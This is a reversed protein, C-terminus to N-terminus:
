IICWKSTSIKHIQNTSFQDSNYKMLIYIQLDYIEYLIMNYSLKYIMYKYTMQINHNIYILSIFYSKILKKIM